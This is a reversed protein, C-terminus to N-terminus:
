ALFEVSGDGSQIATTSNSGYMLSSIRAMRMSNVGAITANNRRNNNNNRNQNQQEGFRGDGTQAQGRAFDWNLESKSVDIDKMNVGMDKLSAMLEGLGTSLLNRVSESPAKIHATVGDEAATLIVSVKGLHEPRLQIELQSTGNLISVRASEVIQNVIQQATVPEQPIEIKAVPQNHSVHAPQNQAPLAANGDVKKGDTKAEETTDDTEPVVPAAIIEETEPVEAVPAAEIIAAADVEAPEETVSYNVLYSTIKDRIEQLKGDDKVVFPLVLEPAEEVAAVPADTRVVPKAETQATVVKFVEVAKLEAKVVTEAEVEFSPAETNAEAAVLRGGNPLKALLEGVANERASPDVMADAVAGLREDILTLVKVLFDPVDKASFEPPLAIGLLALLDALAYPDLELTEALQPVDIIPAEAAPAATQTDATKQVDTTPANQAAQANDTNPIVNASEDKPQQADTRSKVKETVATRATKLVTSFDTESASKAVPAAKAANSVLNTLSAANTTMIQTAFDNM